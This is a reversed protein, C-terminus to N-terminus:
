AVALHFHQGANEGTMKIVNTALSCPSVQFDDDLHSLFDVGLYHVSPDEWVGCESPRPPSFSLETAPQATQNESGASFKPNPIELDCSRRRLNMQATIMNM